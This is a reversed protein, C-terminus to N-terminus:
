TTEKPEDTAKIRRKPLNVKIDILYMKLIRVSEEINDLRTNFHNVLDGVTGYGAIPREIFSFEMQNKDIITNEKPIVSQSTPSSVLPEPESLSPALKTNDPVAQQAIDNKPPILANAITDRPNISNKFLKSRADETTKSAFDKMYTGVLSAMGGLADLDDKSIKEM